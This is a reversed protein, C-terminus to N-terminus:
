LYKYIFIYKINSSSNFIKVFICTNISSYYSTFQLLTHSIILLIFFNFQHFEASHQPNVENLWEISENLLLISNMWTCMRSNDITVFLSINRCLFLSLSHPLLSFHSFFVSWSGKKRLLKAVGSWYLNCLHSFTHTDTHVHSLAYFISSYCVLHLDQAIYIDLFQNVSLNSSLIIELFAKM